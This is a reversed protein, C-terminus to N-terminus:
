YARTIADKLLPAPIMQPVGQALRGTKFRGTVQNELREVEIGAGVADFLSRLLEAYYISWKAGMTHRIIATQAGGENRHEFHLSVSHMAQLEFYKLLSDLTLESFKFQIFERAITKGTSAALDKANEDSLYGMIKVLLQLPTDVSEFKKLLADWFVYKRLAINVLANISLSGKEALEELGDQVDEDIRVTRTISRTDVKRTSL